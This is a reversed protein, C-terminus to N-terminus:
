SDLQPNFEDLKKTLPDFVYFQILVFDKTEPLYGYLKDIDFQYLEGNDNLNKNVNPRLYTKITKSNGAKDTVTYICRPTTSLVSDKHEQTLDDNLFIDFAVTQYRSFFEKARLTDFAANTEPSHLPHLEYQGEDIRNIIFSQAKDNPYELKISAMQDINYKYVLRDRWENEIVNYRTSLYGRFGPISMIFPTSSNELLMYTGTQKQTPGGVYYTKILKDGAYIETKVSTTALNKIITNHKSKTIPSKVQLNHITHLLIKTLDKRAPYKNNVIWENDIRELTLKNNNKDAMFIKTIAATDKIAFDRLEEKVTSKNNTMLFYAIPAM